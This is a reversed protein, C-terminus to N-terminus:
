TKFANVILMVAGGLIVLPIALLYFSWATTAIGAETAHGGTVLTENLDDVAIQTPQYLSNFLIYGVMVSVLAVVIGQALKKMDAM